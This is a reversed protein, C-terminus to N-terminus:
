QGSACQALLDSVAQASAAYDRYPAIAGKRALDLDMLAQRIPDDFKSAAQDMDSTQMAELEERLHIAMDHAPKALAKCNKVGGVAGAPFSLFILCLAVVIRM